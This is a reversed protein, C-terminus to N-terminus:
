LMEEFKHGSTGEGEGEGERYSLRLDLGATARVGTNGAEASPHQGPRTCTPRRPGRPAWGIAIASASPPLPEPINAPESEGSLGAVRVAPAAAAAAAADYMAVACRGRLM